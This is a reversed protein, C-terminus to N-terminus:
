YRGSNSDTPESLDVQPNVMTFSTLMERLREDALAENRVQNHIYSEVQVRTTDGLSRVALKRSFDIPCHSRRCHHQIRGKVRGALTVPSVQPLTSLILQLQGPALSSELVRIGDKDWEPAIDPLVRSLLDTPFSANSPWGTWGYRLQFAPRLDAPRYLTEPLL